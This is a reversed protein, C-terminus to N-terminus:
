AHHEGPTGAVNRLIEVLRRANKEADHRECVIERSRAGMRARLPADDILRALADRLGEIDGPEILYGNEGEEVLEPIGALRTSVIPLASAGAEGLVMPLCDGHTPLCFIDAASFLEKLGESNPTLGHHVKVQPQDPAPDATVLHLELKPQGAIRRQQLLDFAELLELGGKRELSSGVFLIRVCDPDKAALPRTWERLNVGPPIVTIKQPDVDYGDVLGDRAWGSWTVFHRAAAFCSRYLDLKAREIWDPGAAHQYAAGLADYQIPTADLSIVSPIRRVWGAALVATVQTHFFLADLRGDNALRRLGRRTQLGAQLTWNSRYVPIRAPFGEAQVVPLIWRVEVDSEQKLAERLNLTHTKHGLAQEIIFGFRYTSTKPPTARITM